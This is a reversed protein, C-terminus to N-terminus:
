YELIHRRFPQLDMERERAPQPLCKRHTQYMIIIVGGPGTEISKETELREVPVYVDATVM